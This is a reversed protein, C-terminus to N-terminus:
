CPPCLIACVAMKQKKSVCKGSTNTNKVFLYLTIKISLVVM